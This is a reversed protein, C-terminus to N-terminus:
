KRPNQIKLVGIINFCVQFHDSPISKDFIRISNINVPMDVSIIILDSTGGQIHTETGYLVKQCYRYEKLLNTFEM